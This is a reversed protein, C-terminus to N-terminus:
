LDFLKDVEEKAASEKEASSPKARPVKKEVNSWYERMEETQPEYTSPDDIWGMPSNPAKSCLFCIPAKREHLRQGEIIIEKRLIKQYRDYTVDYNYGVKNRFIITQETWKNGCECECLNTCLIAREESM